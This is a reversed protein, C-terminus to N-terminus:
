SRTKFKGTVQELVTVNVANEGVASGLNQSQQGLDDLEGTITEFGRANQNAVEVLDGMANELKGLRTGIVASRDLVGDTIRRLHDFAKTVTNTEESLAQLAANVTTMAISLHDVGQTLEHITKGTAVVDGEAKRVTVTIQDLSGAINKANKSTAESLKRIEGAVVAFGRGSAGAHAAEISANMALLNTQDAVDNIVQIFQGIGETVRAVANISRVTEQMQADGQRGLETLQGALALKDTTENSILQLAEVMERTTSQSSNVSGSQDELDALLTKLFTQVDGLSFDPSRVGDNLTNLRGQLDALTRRISAVGSEVSQADMALTEGLGRGRSSVEQLRVMEAELQDTFANYDRTLAAVEDNGKVAGRGTLDGAAMAQFSLATEKLPRIIRRAMFVIFAAGVIAGGVGLTLSLFILRGVALLDTDINTKIGIVYDIKGDQHLPETVDIVQHDGETEFLV